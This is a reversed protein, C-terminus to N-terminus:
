CGKHTIANAPCVLFCSGCEDCRSGDIKYQREDQYIADFSCERKCKGCSICGSGISLGAEIVDFGNYAFRTRLVKHDMVVKEFDYNFIEGRFKMICFNVMTPYKEHDAVSFEFMKNQQAKVKIAEASVEIVDGTLRAFYGPDFVPSGDELEEVKSQAALGCISLKGTAKLQKYFPKTYMTMFYIGQEDYGRLHAIRTEPYGDEDVTAFTLCGIKDFKEYIEQLTM